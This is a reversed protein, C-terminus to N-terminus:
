CGDCAEGDLYGLRCLACTEKRSLAESSGRAGYEALVEFRAELRESQEEENAEDTWAVLIRYGGDPLLNSRVTLRPEEVGVAELEEGLARYGDLPVGHAELDEALGPPLEPGTEIVSICPFEVCELTVDTGPFASRAVRRVSGPRFVEDEPWRPPPGSLPDVMQRLLALEAEMAAVDPCPEPAAVPATAPATVAAPEGHRGFTEGQELKTVTEGQRLELTGAIVAAGALAGLAGAAWERQVFAEQGPRREAAALPEVDIEVEGDVGLIADALVVEAAGSVRHRGPGPLLRAPTSASGLLWGLALAALALSATALWRSRARRPPAEPLAALQGPLAQMRGWQRRLAPEEVLRRRIEAEEVADLEGDLLRSLAELDERM